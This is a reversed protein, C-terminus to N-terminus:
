VEGKRHVQRESHTAQSYALCTRCRFRKYTRTQTYKFGAEELDDGGCAHCGSVTQWRYQNLNPHNPIWPRLRDYLEETLRVDHINYRRMMAWAKDDGAMCDRWLQFGSHQVKFGIGLERSVYDLKNSPFKFRRRAVLLLDIDKHATPPGLRANIFERNLHKVDFARQNWGVVIDAEDLLEWAARVMEDHGDHHDSYYHVKREGYWKAAFCFTGGPEVIQSIAINQDWLGWTFVQNPRTEIDIILIRAGTQKIRDRIDDALAM